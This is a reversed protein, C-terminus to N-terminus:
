PRQSKLCKLLAELALVAGGFVKFFVHTKKLKQSKLGKLLAELALVAGGFVKFFLNNKLTKPIEPM